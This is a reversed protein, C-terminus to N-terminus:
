TYKQSMVRNLNKRAECFKVTTMGPNQLRIILSVKM